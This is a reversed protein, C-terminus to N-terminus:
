EETDQLYLEKFREFATGDLMFSQKQDPIRNLFKLNRGKLSYELDITPASNIQGTVVLDFYMYSDGYATILCSGDDLFNSTFRDCQVDCSVISVGQPLKLKAVIDAPEYDLQPSSITVDIKTVDESVRNYLPTVSFYCDDGRLMKHIVEYGGYSREIVEVSEVTDFTIAAFGIVIVVVSVIVALIIRKTRKQM